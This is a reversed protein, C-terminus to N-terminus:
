SFPVEIFLHADPKLEFTQSALDWGGEPHVFLEVTGQDLAEFKPLSMTREQHAQITGIRVDFDGEELFLTVQRDRDNQVTVTTTGDGPNPIMEPPQVREYGADNTPVLIKLSEGPHVTLDRTALDMEGEPHVFVQIAEGDELYRPLKLTTESHAAVTGLRIDFVDRQLYAIVPVDRTNEVTLTAWASGGQQAAAQGFPAFAILAAGGAMVLGKMLNKM